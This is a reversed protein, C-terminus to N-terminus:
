LTRAFHIAREVEKYGLALHAGLSAENTLNTDSAMEKLGLSRAWAEAAQMLLRGIGQRRVDEDVFWGEIYGVPGTDCGDAYPRTGAELFGCLGGGRREALFVPTQPNAIFAKMEREHAGPKADPWLLRRMRLWEGLDAPTARHIFPLDDM